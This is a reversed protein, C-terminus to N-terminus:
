GPLGACWAEGVCRVVAVRDIGAGGRVVLSCGLWGLEVDVRGDWVVIAPPATHFMRGRPAPGSRAPQPSSRAQAPRRPRSRRAAEPEARFAPLVVGQLDSMSSAQRPRRHTTSVSIASSNRPSEARGTSALPRPVRRAVLGHELEQARHQAGPHHLVPTTRCGTVPVGCPPTILGTSTCRRGAGARGPTPRARARPAPGSRRRGAPSTRVRCCASAASARSRCSSASSPRAGFSALVRM